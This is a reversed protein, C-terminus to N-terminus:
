LKYDIQNEVVFKATEEETPISTSAGKKSVTLTGVINGYTCARKIDGTRIYELTMAASFADGAATTDVVEVCDYTPVLQYFDGDYIFVGRGGLKLVFYKANVRKELERCAKLCNEMSDPKIGTFVETETENPSFIDVRALKELEFDKNAPGADIIVPINQAKAFETVKVIIDFPIECQMFVADPYCTFAEEVDDATIAYNAGPYVVIRNAGTSEVMVIALGTKSDDDMKIFRTDINSDDYFKKLTQGNADKGLRTCFVSDAGLKAFALASNAGKGGPIYDYDRELVTQGAPPVEKVKMMLDMNASSVILVRSKMM